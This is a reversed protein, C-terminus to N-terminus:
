ISSQRSGDQAAPLMLVVQYTRVQWGTETQEVVQLTQVQVAGVGAVVTAHPAIDQADDPNPQAPVYETEATEVVFVAGIVAPEADSAMARNGAPSQVLKAMVVPTAPAATRPGGASAVEGTAAQADSVIRHSPAKTTRMLLPKNGAAPHFMAPVVAIRHTNADGRFALDAHSQIHAQAAMGQAAGTPPEFVVMQPAYELIGFCALSLAAALGLAGRGVRTTATAGGELIRAIRVSAERARAVAAQAMTWGRRACGRELLGILSGAYTRADGTAALVADDCAMEREVSLRADIWWVAPHFFLLARVIKQLLNTWDDRRRLHAMEHILIPRLEHANLERLCWTPLLIAPSWYGIAAPVRVDDSVMLRVHRRMEPQLMAEQLEPDLGAVEVETCSTRIGRVQRLGAILRMLAVCAIPIWLAVLWIAWHGPVTMEAHPAVGLARGGTALGSLLPLSAVGVLATLWVAFRTGANQRGILRLVLWACAALLLGEPLSNLVRELAIQALSEVGVPMPLGNM